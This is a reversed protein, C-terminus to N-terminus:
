AMAYRIIVIGSGGAGGVKTGGVDLYGGAGGGGGTNATGATGEIDKGIGGGGLGGANNSGSVHWGGGGGGAYYGGDVGSGTPTAFATIQVGIGGVAAGASATGIGVAGAGGGGGGNYPPSGVNGAGAFGQVPSATRAGGTGSPSYGGGAAGGGSGGTRGNKETGSDTGGGGGGTSTITSFVSNNGDGGAVTTTSAVGGAGVTVTYAQATLSLASELSGGGGTAGVTCRLGGAGGGGGKAGGGGGGAVVLVDATLGFQPVFNGSSLFAHYWYTGDNAVINGGTAKPAVTPTTGFAALGYLSFTSGSLFSAFRGALTISTVASTSASGSSWLFTSIKNGNSASANDEASADISISKNTSSTYNPCYVELNGFTSATANNGPVILGNNTTSDSVVTTGYGWLGRASNAEAGNFSLLVYDGNSARATRASVVIKLDTYGTQPINDLVVSAANASLTVKELLVYNAPM